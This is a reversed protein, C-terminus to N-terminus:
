AQRYPDWASPATRLHRSLAGIVLDADLTSEGDHELLPTLASPATAQWVAPGTESSSLSAALPGLDVRAPPTRTRLQVWTEYRDVYRFRRGHVMLLRTRETVNHVAMPHIPGLQMHGFRHGFREPEAGDIEVVALDLDNHETIAVRGQAIAAESASLVEDEAAWLHEYRLPDTVIEILEPLVAEYLLATDGAQDGSLQDAVPSRLPDAFADLIMSARAADRYRFTGFDGAAALDVLLERRDLAAVPDILAFLGAAGDQDYHNNTVVGAADHGVPDDLYAFAMEASTDVTTQSPQAQGPWHTLTLVTAENPSGDVVINPVGRSEEYGLFQRPAISMVELM